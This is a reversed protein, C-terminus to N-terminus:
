AKSMQEWLDRQTDSLKTPLKISINAYLDGKDGNKTALGHKSVRLKQGNQSGAKVQLRVSGNLTSITVKDGLVAQWPELELDYYLDSGKVRFDPHQAFRVKLYLDGSGGGGVGPNGQGALRIRQGERVGAPIKVNFTQVEQEGSQPNVKRLSVRRSDGRGVEELTVMLEAEVDQGIAAYNQARAGAGGRYRVKGRSFPDGGSGGFYHEFFDSFGTGGFHFEYGDGAGGMGGPYGGGGDGHRGAQDWNVGLQDYKSRKDPDKLVEYAENIEKFKAEATAKEAEKVKDPHHKRALDRFAKKLEDQTASKSVGLTEYYDKYQIPM